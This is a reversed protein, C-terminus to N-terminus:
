IAEGGGALGKKLHEAVKQNFGPIAALEEVTAAKL